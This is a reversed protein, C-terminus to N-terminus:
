ITVVDITPFQGANQTFESGNPSYWYLGFRRAGNVSKATTAAQGSVTTGHSAQTGTGFRATIKNDAELWDVQVVKSFAFTQGSSFNQATDEAGDVYWPAQILNDTRRTTDNGCLINNDEQVLMNVAIEWDAVTPLGSSPDYSNKLVGAILGVGGGPGVVRFSGSQVSCAMQIRYGPMYLADRTFLTGPSVSSGDYGGYHATFGTQAAYSKPAYRIHSKDESLKFAAKSGQLSGLSLKSSAVGLALGSERKAPDNPHLDIVGRVGITAEIKESIAATQELSDGQIQLQFDRVAGGADYSSRGAYSTASSAAIREQKASVSGSALLDTRDGIWIGGLELFDDEVCMNGRLEDFEVCWYRRKLDDERLGLDYMAEQACTMADFKIADWQTSSGLSYGHDMLSFYAVSTEGFTPTADLGTIAANNFNHGIRYLNIVSFNGAVNGGWTSPTIDTGQQVGDIFLALRTLPSATGLRVFQWVHWGGLYTDPIDWYYIEGSHSQPQWHMVRITGAAGLGKAVWVGEYNTANGGRSALSWWEGNSAGVSLKAGITAVFTANGVAAGCDRRFVLSGDAPDSPTTHFGVPKTSGSVQWYQSNSDGRYDTSYWGIPDVASLGRRPNSLDPYPNGRLQAAVDQEEAGKWDESWAVISPTTSSAGSLDPGYKNGNYNIHNKPNFIHQPRFPPSGELYGSGYARGRESQRDAGGQLGQPYVYGTGSPLDYSTTAIFSFYNLQQRSAWHWDEPEPYELCLGSRSAGGLKIDRYIVDGYGVDKVAAPENFTGGNSVDQAHGVPAFSEVVNSGMFRATGGQANCDILGISDASVPAGCDLIIRCADAARGSATKNTNWTIRCRANRDEKAVNAVPYRYQVVNAVEVVQSSNVESAGNFTAVADQAKNNTSIVTTAPKAM